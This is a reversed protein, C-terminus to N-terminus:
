EWVIYTNLINWGRLKVHSNHTAERQFMYDFPEATEAGSIAGTTNGITLNHYYDFDFLFTTIIHYQSCTQPDDRLCVSRM